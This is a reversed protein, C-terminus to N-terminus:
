RCRTYPATKIVAHGILQERYVTARAAGALNLGIARQASTRLESSVFQKCEATLYAGNNCELCLTWSKIM